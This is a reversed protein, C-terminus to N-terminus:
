PKIRRWAEVLPPLVVDDRFAQARAISQPNPRDSLAKGIERAAEEHTKYFRGSEEIYNRAEPCDRAVVTCGTALAEAISVPMGYLHAEPDHSRLYVSARRTLAANEEHSIDRLLEVPSGLSRNLNELHHAYPQDPATVALIFRCFATPFLRKYVHAIRIFGDLDKGVLGAGSRFVLREKVDSPYYRTPSYASTMPVIKPSPFCRSVQHPFLFIWKINANSCHRHTVDPDFEFSHGRVTVPVDLSAVRYVINSWHVHVVDPKWRKVTSVVDCYTVNVDVPYSVGPHKESAVAIEVGQARVFELETRIYSESLVPFNDVAYLIRM